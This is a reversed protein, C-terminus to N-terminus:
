HAAPQLAAAPITVSGVANSGRDFVILRFRAAGSNIPVKETVAIGDRMARDRAAVDYDIDLPTLPGSAILGDPQYAIPVIRLHDTYRDGERALALDRADIRLHVLADDSELDQSVTARLGIEEADVPAAAVARFASQTRSGAATKWAYYGTKAQVHVGHRTSTVRVKHFKDDWNGAPAYYGVQYYSRLDNRAQELAAAIDKGANRRGGTLDALLDLTELSQLGTGGGGTAGFGGSASGIDDARGLMIQRVPYIAINSRELAESLQRIQPTFDIAVGTDSRRQGLFIPIGDTIWVVIKRGPIASLEEGLRVLASLTFQIRALVDIDPSRLSMVSRLGSDLSTKIDKTWPVDPTQTAPTEGPFVGHLAFFKANVSLLYLYLSDASELPGLDHVLYNAAVGRETFGLNLLDFLIVTANRTAGPPRNTFGQGASVQAVRSGERVQRFFSIKQPKGADSIQFDDSTLDTVPRGHNDLAVVNLDLLRPETQALNTAPFVATVLFILRASSRIM